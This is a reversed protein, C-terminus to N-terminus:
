KQGDKVEKAQPLDCGKLKGCKSCTPAVSCTTDVKNNVILYGTSVAMGSLILIRGTTKIFNKRNM